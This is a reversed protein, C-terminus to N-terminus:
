KKWGTLRGQSEPSLVEYDWWCATKHGSLECGRRPTQHFSASDKFSRSGLKRSHCVGCYCLQSIHKLVLEPALRARHHHDEEGTGGVGGETTSILHISLHKACHTASYPSRVQQSMVELARTKGAERILLCPEDRYSQFRRHFSSSKTRWLWVVIPRDSLSLFNQAIKKLPQLCLGFRNLESPFEPFMAPYIQSSLYHPGSWLLYDNILLLGAM